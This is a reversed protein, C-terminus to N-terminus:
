YASLCVRLRGLRRCDDALGHGRAPCPPPTHAGDAALSTRAHTVSPATRSSLRSTPPSRGATPYRAGPEPELCTRVIAEFAQPVEPFVDRLQPAKSRRSAAAARLVDAMTRVGAAPKDAFPRAGMTEHLLIGLSYIDARADVRSIDGDALADLHEPAMYSFTGGLVASAPADPEAWPTRALNFDLLM